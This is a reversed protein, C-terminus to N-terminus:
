RPERIAFDLNHSFAGSTVVAGGSGASLEYIGTSLTEHLVTHVAESM